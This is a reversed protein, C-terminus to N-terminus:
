DASTQIPAFMERDGSPHDAASESPLLVEPTRMAESDGM